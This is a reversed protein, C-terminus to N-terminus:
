GAGGTPARGRALRFGVHEDRDDRHLAYRYAARVYRADDYWSGGRMVRYPREGAPAVPDYVVGESYPDLSSGDAGDACWEWVNGLMDHLGWANPRRTKVKRTGARKHPYQKEPWDSSDYAEALDYEVGSNGGYWAIADLVPADREGRIEIPGAYTAERTGARCAYEWEAETPVRLDLATRGLFDQVDDWSVNEVPREPDVFRSPNAGMVARWLAQTCPAEALWFGESLIVRHEPGEDDFRGPEGAPSGMTFGEPGTKPIWRMRFTVDAVRADIWRGAEDTGQDVGWGGAGGHVLADGAGADRGLGQHVGRGATAGGTRPGPVSRDRTISWVATGAAGVVGAGLFWRRSGGPGAAESGRPGHHPPAEGGDGDPARGDTPPAEAVPRVSPGVEATPADGGVRDESAEPEEIPQERARHVLDLWAGADGPRGTPEVALGAVLAAELGSSIRLAAVLGRVDYKMQHPPRGGRLAAVTTMSLGYVDARADATSADELCEPAAFIVTGMAGARTGGTTDDVHVLDFDSVKAVGDKTMLINAPKIDRHVIGRRHCEAVADAVEEMLDLVRERELGAEIERRLDSGEVYEMVFYRHGDDNGEPDLVRVIHPHNLGAMIRAGRKFRDVRSQDRTHEGHLLKVAVRTRLKRDFAEWVTAFGGRGLERRLQYRGSLVDGEVLQPGARLRRKIDLTEEVEVSTDEGAAELADIRDYLADLREGLHRQEETASGSGPAHGRIAAILPRVNTVGKSLDVWTRLGLFMPPEGGRHGNPLLVPIVSRRDKTSEVLAGQMEQEHWGGFGNPGVFVAVTRSRRLADELAPQWPQGAVLHWKDLFPKLGAAELRRAIAEVVPKDAAHHSLFVDYAYSM